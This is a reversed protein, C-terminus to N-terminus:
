PVDFLENILEPPRGIIARNQYEVIPRKLLIPHDAIAQLLAADDSQALKLKKYEPANSRIMASAPLGLKLQLSRLQELTLPVKQYEIIELLLQHRACLQEVLSMAERSHTCRSHYYITIM